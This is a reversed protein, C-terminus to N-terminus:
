SGGARWCLCREPTLALLPGSPTRDRYVPYKDVLCALGAPAESPALIEIRGLIQVWALRSWDEEYHDVTLAARPDRRLRRVRALRDASVRKPKEDVASWLRDGDSAFTVPQVRPHHLEDLLGLHAVRADGLLQTAWAPLDHLESPAM